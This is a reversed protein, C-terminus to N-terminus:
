PKKAEGEKIKTRSKIPPAQTRINKSAPINKARAKALPSGSISEFKLTIDGSFENKQDRALNQELVKAMESELNSDLTGSVRLGTLKKALGSLEAGIQATAGKSSKATNKNKTSHKENTSTTASIKISVEPSKIDCGQAALKFLASNMGATAKLAVTTQLLDELKQTLASIQTQQEAIILTLASLTAVLENQDQFLHPLHLFLDVFDSANEKGAIIIPYYFQGNQDHHTPSTSHILGRRDIQRKAAKHAPNTM